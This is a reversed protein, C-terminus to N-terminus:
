WRTKIGCARAFCWGRVAQYFGVLAMVVCVGALWPQSAAVWWAIGAMLLGWAARFVRGTTDINPKFNM